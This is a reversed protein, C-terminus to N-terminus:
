NATPSLLEVIADINRRLWEKVRRKSAHTLVEYAKPNEYKIVLELLEPTVVRKLADLLEPRGKVMGRALGLMLRQPSGPPSREVADKVTTGDLLSRAVDAPSLSALISLTQSVVSRISPSLASLAKEKIREYGKKTLEM